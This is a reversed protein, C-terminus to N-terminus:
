SRNLDKIAVTWPSQIGAKAPIVVPIASPPKPLKKPTVKAGGALNEPLQFLMGYVSGRAGFIPSLPKSPLHSDSSPIATLRVQM